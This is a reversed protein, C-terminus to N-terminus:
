ENPPKRYLTLNFEDDINKSFIFWSSNDTEIYSLCSVDKSDSLGLLTSTKYNTRKKIYRVSASANKTMGSLSIGYENLALAGSKEVWEAKIM